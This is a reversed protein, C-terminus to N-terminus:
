FAFDQVQIEDVTYGCDRLEKISSECNEYIPSLGNDKNYCKTIKLLTKLDSKSLANKIKEREM